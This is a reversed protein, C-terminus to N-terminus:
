KGDGCDASSLASRAMKIMIDYAGEFDGSSDLEMEDTLMQDAFNQLVKRLREEESLPELAGAAEGLIHKALVLCATYSIPADLKTTEEYLYDAIAQPSAPQQADASPVSTLLQPCNTNGCPASFGPCLPCETLRVSSIIEDAANMACGCGNPWKQCDSECAIHKAILHWLKDRDFPAQADDSM